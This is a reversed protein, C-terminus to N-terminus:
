TLSLCNHGIPLIFKIVFGIFKNEDREGRLRESGEKKRRQPKTYPVM